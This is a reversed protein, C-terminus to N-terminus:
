TAEGQHICWLAKFTRILIHGNSIVVTSNSEEELDNRSIQKYGDPTAEFVFTDGNQMLQYAIGDSTMTMSGWTSSKGGSGNMRKKWVSKGTEINLCSAIGGMDYVYAHGKHTVGSGLWSGDRQKHWIRSDSVDGTGGANVALSAGFYGGLAIITKEHAMPSTYVLPSYGGCTWLQKGSTPDYGSIRRPHGVVLEVRNGSDILIPTGWSGRLMESPKADAKDKANGDNENGSLALEQELGIPEVKWREEGTTKDLGILSENNGPGFNLICVDKHLIPSTGYGWMHEVTGLDRKWQENGNMDYCVLGASGYWVIVREGDTVPSSSCYHNTRHTEEEADYTVHKQWLEQGSALSYCILKRKSTEKEPQTLFIKDGWVVPSSNGPEPLPVSWKVNTERSWKTPLKSENSIGTGKPGRWQPWNEAILSNSLIASVILASLAIRIFSRM